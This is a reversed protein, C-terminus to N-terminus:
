TDAVTTSTTDVRNTSIVAGNIAGTGTGNLNVDNQAYILGNLRVDGSIQITGAVVLWGSWNEGASWNGHIDVVPINASPTSSSLVSGDTTDVFILGSPPPSTWTQSGQYYTGSAKAISKLIAMDADSLLMSSPYTAGPQTESGGPPADLDPTGNVTVIGNSGVASGPTVGSCYKTTDAANVVANGGM